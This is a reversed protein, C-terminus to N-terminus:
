TLTQPVSMGFWTLIYKAQCFVEDGSCCEELIKGIILGCKSIYIIYYKPWSVVIQLYAILLSNHLTCWTAPLVSEYKQYHWM